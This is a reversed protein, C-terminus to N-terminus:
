TDGTTLIYEPIQPSVLRVTRYEGSEPDRVRQYAFPFPDAQQTKKPNPM